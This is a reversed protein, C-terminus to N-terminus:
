VSRAVVPDTLSTKPFADHAGPVNRRRKTRKRLWIWVGTVSLAVVALGMLSIFIRYPWGGIALSGWHLHYLWTTITNGMTQGTPAEFAVREGTDDDVWLSTAPYRESIDLSSRVSYRYVGYDAEYRFHREEHVQFGKNAAEVQMLPQARQHAERPSLKPSIRKNALQTLQQRTPADMGFAAKMVPNYVESLNLGVSSWAFVFLMAWVWLGSARHWTFVLSFLKNARVLWAPKWRALWSKGGAPAAPRRRAPFTLYAGVFCDLTWLLAVIGFLYEGVAGLALSYHLRYLFPMLGRAGQSIDGWKRSGLVKGTYPDVFFENDVESGEPTDVWFSAAEDPQINLPITSLPSGKPLQAELRERLTFGDLPRADAKPKMVEFLSPNLASDLEHYFVLLSGTVGAITLFIAMALGVYRHVLIAVAHLSARGRPGPRGTPASKMRPFAAGGSPAVCSPVHRSTVSRQRLFAHETM